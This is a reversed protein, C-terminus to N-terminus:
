CKLVLFQIHVINPFYFTCFLYRTSSYNSPFFLFYSLLLRNKSAPLYGFSHYGLAGSAIESYTPFASFYLPKWLYNELSKSVPLVPNPILSPHSILLSSPYTKLDSTRVPQAPTPKTLSCPCSLIYPINNLSAAFSESDLKMFFPFFHLPM